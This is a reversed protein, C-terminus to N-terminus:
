AAIARDRRRGPPSFTPALLERQRQRRWGTWVTTREAARGVKEGGPRQLAEAAVPTVL